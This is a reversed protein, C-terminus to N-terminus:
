AVHLRQVRPVPHDSTPCFFESLFPAPVKGAVAETNTSSIFSVSIVGYFLQVYNKFDTRSAHM